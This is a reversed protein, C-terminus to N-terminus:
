IHVRGFLSLALSSFFGAILGFVSARGTSYSQAAEAARVREELKKHDAAITTLGILVADVKGELRGFDRGTVTESM